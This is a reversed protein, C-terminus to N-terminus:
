DGEYSRQFSGQIASAMERLHARADTAQKMAKCFIGRLVFLHYHVSLFKFVIELIQEVQNMPLVLIRKLILILAIWDVAILTRCLDM